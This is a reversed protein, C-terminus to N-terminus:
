AKTPLTLHTYSVPYVGHPTAFVLDNRVKAVNIVLEEPLGNTGSYLVVSKVSKLDEKLEIKYLGKYNHSVWINGVGDEELVRASEDFGNIKGILKWDGNEVEYLHLGSYSGEIGYNPHSKLRLFKWAGKIDSFPKLKNDDLYAAGSHKGVIIKNNIRDISWVQGIGNEVLEFKSDEYPDNLKRYFLGQNTGLYLKDEHVISTYGTGAIGEEARIKSFPSNIEAYDIGNDLGLWLNHQLDELISLITNNQLGRKVNLNQVPNGDQDFILLGKHPTGVAYRGDSLQIACYIQHNKLFENAPASTWPRDRICM